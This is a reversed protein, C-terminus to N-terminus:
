PQTTVAAGARLLRIALLAVWALGVSLSLREFLGAPGSGAAMVAFAVFCGVTLVATGLSYAAWGRWAPDGAFRRALVLCAAPLGAFVSIAGGLFHITGHLTTTAAPGPPTGPPYGLAPDTVFVGAIILGVGVVALLLPGWTAGKGHAWVRRLGAAFGVILLGSVLFNAIQMWGQDSLSLASVAMRWPDYGPRTAGEILYVLTFLIPGLLGGYLLWSSQRTGSDTRVLQYDM